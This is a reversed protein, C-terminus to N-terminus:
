PYYHCDPMTSAGVDSHLAAANICCFGSGSANRLGLGVDLVCQGIKGVGTEHGIVGDRERGASMRHSADVARLERLDHWGAGDGGGIGVALDREVLGYVGEVHGDHAIVDFAGAGLPPRQDRRAVLRHIRIEADVIGVVVPRHRSKRLRRIVERTLTRIDKM